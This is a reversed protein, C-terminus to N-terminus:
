SEIIEQVYDTDRLFARWMIKSLRNELNPTM